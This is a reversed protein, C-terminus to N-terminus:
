FSFKMGFQVQRGPRGATVRGFETLPNTAVDNTTGIESWQTHNFANFMEWRFDLSKSETLYFKKFASVDWNNIGPGRVINRGANGRYDAIGDEDADPPNVFCNTDFSRWFTRSGGSLNGSCTRTPVDGMYDRNSTDGNYVTFARGTELTPILNVQWGDLLLRRWGKAGKAFPLEYSVVAVFRHPHNADSEAHSWERHWQGGVASVNDYGQNNFTIDTMKSWTWHSMVTLGQSYRKEFRLTLANYDNYADHHIAMVSGFRDCWEENQVCLPRARQFDDSNRYIGQPPLNLDYGITLDRGRSGAYGVSVM